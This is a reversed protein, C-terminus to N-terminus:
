NFQEKCNPCEKLKQDTFEFGCESCEFTEKHGDPEDTQDAGIGLDDKTLEGSTADGTTEPPDAPAKPPDGPDDNLEIDKHKYKTHIALATVNRFEKGFCADGEKAHPCKVM